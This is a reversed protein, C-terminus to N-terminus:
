TLLADFADDLTPQEFAYGMQQLRAPVQRTSALLLDSGMEGFALNVFTEPVSLVAPRHLHAALAKAFQRATVSEPAVLNVPGEATDSEALEVLSAAADDLSIWPWYQEGSGPAGGLGLRFIPLMKKLAGGRTSLVMSIRPHVVGIGRETAPQTAAEWRRCVEALFGSGSAASEDLVEEGRDGYFGAASASIFLDPPHVRDALTRALLDTGGVRSELIRKKRRAGWRGAAINEGALHIVVDAHELQEADITGAAPDWEVLTGMPARNPSTLSGPRVLRRVHHGREMLRACLASGILGTSGSVIIQM